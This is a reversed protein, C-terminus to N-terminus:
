STRIRSECGSATEVDLRIRVGILLAQLLSNIITDDRAKM